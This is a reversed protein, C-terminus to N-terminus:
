RQEKSARKSELFEQIDSELWGTARKSIKIRRPLEGREEMRYITQPSVNLRRSLELPRIIQLKSM